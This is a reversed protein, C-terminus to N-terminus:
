PQSPKDKTPPKVVAPKNQPRLRLTVKTGVPPLDAANVQWQLSAKQDSHVGPLCLLEDGFTVVSIVNGSEDSLYKRPEPGGGILRSGAFLFTHTPFRGAPKQGEVANGPPETESAARTIFKSIPHAVPRGTMDPFVLLVDVADGRPPIDTWGQDEGKPPQLIAPNGARAGLLLLATHIHTPRAEIAVISEHEKTGKTCAVLELMGKDLCITSAIDVCCEDLNIALGPMKLKKIAAELAPNSRRQEAVRDEGRVPREEAAPAAVVGLMVMSFVLPAVRLSVSRLCMWTPETAATRNRKM